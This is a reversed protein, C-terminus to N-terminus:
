ESAEFYQVQYTLIDLKNKRWADSSLGAKLCLHELFEEPEPLQEWVQPLFTASAQGKRIIVGDIEVRLRTLLDEGDVYALPQPETLISVEIDVKELEKKTLPPFRPDHFAANIANRRVGESLPENATLNGICGRLQDNIKLTVFTGCYSQYCRDQLSKQVSEFEDPPVAKGLEQMITQRALQVLVQGQEESLQRNSTAKTQMPQEGFFAIAAYGVVRSRNGSTDGSNSYHLLVPQWNHQKAMHILISLPIAGCARNKMNSFGNLSRNMIYDITERDREVAETYSLFHSLDTSVVLLANDELISNLQEAFHGTHTPGAVIPVLEFAELYSQLFLLVMELSHENRDSVSSPQFMESQSRLKEADAHLKVVGLPTRYAGVDSIAGNKLGVYHDPGLLIVKSFNKGSLVFVAHAATWGSYAYGAHPLVLARLQKKSPIQLRSKKAQRTLEAIDEKIQKPDAPYWSGAKAAERINEAYVDAPVFLAALYFTLILALSLLSSSKM